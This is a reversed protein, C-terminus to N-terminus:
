AAKGGSVVADNINVEIAKEPCIKVCEMCGTCRDYYRGYVKFEKSPTEKFKYTMTGGVIFVSTPCIVLCKRCKLPDECKKVNVEAVKM